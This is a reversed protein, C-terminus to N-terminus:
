VALDLRESPLAAEPLDVDPLEPEVAGAPVEHSQGVEVVVLPPLRGVGDDRRVSPEHGELRCLRDVLGPDAASDQEVPEPFLRPRLSSRDGREASWGAGSRPRAVTERRRGPPSQAHASADACGRHRYGTWQYVDGPSFDPAKQLFARHM